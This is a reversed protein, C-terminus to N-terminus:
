NCVSKEYLVSANFMAQVVIKLFSIEKRIQAVSPWNFDGSPHAIQNRLKMLQDLQDRARKEVATVDQSSFFTKLSAETSIGSWINQMGARDFLDQLTKSHMNAETLSLCEHNVREVAANPALNSALTSVFAGVVSDDHGYKKPKLIVKATFHPLNHRMKQPLSAFFHAKVVLRQCLDEFLNRSVSEFRGCTYVLLTGQAIPLSHRIDQADDLLARKAKDFETSGTPTTEQSAISGFKRLTDLFELYGLVLKIDREAVNPLYGIAQDVADDLNKGRSKHEVLLVGPWFLDVFGQAGGLKKVHLEFTAVRKNTIGFIEFFDLWFPKAQSDENSADAWTKSFLLARSKIENWNLVM